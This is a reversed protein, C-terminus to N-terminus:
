RPHSPAHREIRCGARRARSSSGARGSPRPHRSTSSTLSLARRHSWSLARACRSVDHSSATLAYSPSIHPSGGDIVFTAQAKPEPPGTARSRSRSSWTPRKSSSDPQYGRTPQGGCSWSGDLPFAARRYALRLPSGVADGLRIAHGRNTGVQHWGGSAALTSMARLGRRLYDDGMVRRREADVRATRTLPACRRPEALSGKVRVLVDVGDVAHHAFVNM